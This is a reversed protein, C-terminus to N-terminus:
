DRHASLWSRILEIGSDSIQHAIPYERYILEDVHEELWANAARGKAIPLVEDFLGHMVLFPLKRLLPSAKETPMNKEPLQGSLAIVGHLLEPANFATLYSMVTGQSFGMLFVQEGAPRYEEILERVFGILQHLAREAAAHDVIIGNPTFELPFWGYMGYDMVQPARASIYRFEPPLAPAIQILDKENSGYGHLMLVLPANEPTEPAQEMYSLSLEKRQLM